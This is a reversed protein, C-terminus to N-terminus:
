IPINERDFREGLWRGSRRGAICSLRGSEVRSPPPSVQGLYQVSNSARIFALNDDAPNVRLASTEVRYLDHSSLPMFYIFQGDASIALGAGTYAGLCGNFHKFVWRRM